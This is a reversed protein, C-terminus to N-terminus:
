CGALSVDLWESLAQARGRPIAVGLGTVDPKNDGHFDSGATAVCGYEDAMQAWRKKQNEGYMATYCELGELGQDRYDGLMEAVLAPANYVHPHALSMKAGHARGLALGDALSLRKIPVDGPGGDRLFRAFAQELNPVVKARVLAAAIHPRGPTGHATRSLIDEPDIVVDLSALRECVKYVRQVRAERIQALERGLSERSAEPINYLLVHVSRGYERCSLELSCFTSPNEYVGRVEDFGAISDHDTLSFLGLAREKAANALATPTWTGDSRISHCHLDVWVKDKADKM